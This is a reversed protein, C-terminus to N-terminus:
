AALLGGPRKQKVLEGKVVNGILIGLKNADTANTTGNDMNVNVVVNTAGGGSMNKNAVVSGSQNPVFLEPGREGVVYPQGSQVAGGIAKAGPAGFFGGIVDALPGTISKRILIKALDSLISVTMARFADKVSMTGMMVNVLADELSELGSIAVDELQKSLNQTADAYEQLATKSRQVLPYGKQLEDELQMLRDLYQEDTILMKSKLNDLERLKQNYVDLPTQISKLVDQVAKIEQELETQKPAGPKFADTSPLKVQPKAATPTSAVKAEMRNIERLLEQAQEIKAQAAGSGLDIGFVRELFNTGVSASMTGQMKQIESRLKEAQTVSDPNLLKNVAQLFGTLNTSALRQFNISLKDIEDNFQAAADIFENSFTAQYKNLADSGQNLVPILRSGARGLLDQAIALKGAGDATQSFRDAVDRFLDITPRINGNADKISIGLADFAEKQAKSGAAAEGIANSFKVIAAQFEETSAGNLQAANGFRSLEEASIGTSESLDKLRDAADILSKSFSTIAGVSFAAALPGAIGRLSGTLRSINGQVSQFAARTQDVASLIIKETAM